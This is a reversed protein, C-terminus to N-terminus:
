KHSVVSADVLETQVNLSDGRNMVKGTLIARVHLDQGLKRPDMEKGKYSFVVTRPVVRLKPLQSLNNILNETIGDSLYETNPDAGINVFPMVALSDIPKPRAAFYAAPVVAIAVAALTFIWGRRSHKHAPLLAPAAEAVGPRGFDTDRKVRKLDARLESATQCRVERDKELAKGIIMELHAPLEPKLKLPPVPARNLIAEFLIATTNGRFPTRGTAMEYLVVGFSFLDTRSDLEEGRAQEPSMYAVTGLTTGPSTILEESLAMTAIASGETERHQRQEAVLKALGFDLIKAQRRTTVFINAPKIDRHVIGKSHAADLADAIQIGLDLLEELKMPRGGIRQRLTHGELLEM